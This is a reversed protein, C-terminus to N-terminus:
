FKVSNYFIKFMCFIIYNFYKCEGNLNFWTTYHWIKKLRHNYPLKVSIYIIM